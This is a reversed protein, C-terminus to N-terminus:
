NSQTEQYQENLGEMVESTVNLKNNTYLIPGGFSYSLIYHFDNNDAYEELYEMVSNLVQRYIVQEKEALESSMQDRLQYLQQEKEGLDKQLMQAKARTIMGKSLKERLDQVRQQLEQSRSQLEAQSSTQQEVFDDRKDQYMQYGALLTDINVYAVRLNGKISISDAAKQASGKKDDKQTMGEGASTFQFVFLLAVAIILVINIILNVKRM